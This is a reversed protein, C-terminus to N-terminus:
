KRHADKHPAEPQDAPGFHAALYALIADRDATEVPAGWRVMKDLEKSWADRGLREQTIIAANHCNLCAARVKDVGPGDPLAAQSTAPARPPFHQAFYDVLADRDKPDVPAGWRIMKDVERAWIRRDLQQQVIIRADHCALCAERAKQQMPGAPLDGPTERTQACLAMAALTVGSIVVTASRKWM